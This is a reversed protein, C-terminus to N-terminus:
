SKFIKLYKFKNSQLLNILNLVKIFSEDSGTNLCINDWLILFENIELTRPLSSYFESDPFSQFSTKNLKKILYEIYVKITISTM